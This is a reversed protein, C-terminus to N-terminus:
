ADPRGKRHMINKFQSHGAMRPDRPNTQSRNESSLAAKYAPSPAFDFMQPRKPYISAAAQRFILCNNVMVEHGSSLIAGVNEVKLLGWGTLSGMANPRNRFRTGSAVAAATSGLTGAVATAVLASGASPSEALSIRSSNSSSSPPM